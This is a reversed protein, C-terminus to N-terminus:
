DNPRGTSQRPGVLEPRIPTINEAELSKRLRKAQAKLGDLAPLLQTTMDEAEHLHQMRDERHTGAKGDRRVAVTEAFIM